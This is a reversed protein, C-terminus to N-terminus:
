GDFDMVYVYDAKAAKGTPPVPGGEGPPTGRLFCCAPGSHRAETYAFSRVDAKGDPLLTMLGKMWETYAELSTIDALADAQATFTARPQCYPECGQWGKGAECAEFFREANEAISSMVSQTCKPASVAGLRVCIVPAAGSVVTFD